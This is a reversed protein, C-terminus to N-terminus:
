CGDGDGRPPFNIFSKGDYRSIGLSTGFWLNGAEDELISQIYNSPLGDTTTFSTFSKGDYRCVGGGATAFWFIGAKDQFVTWVFNNSLGEKETFNTFSKGDYCSVGGFRTSFWLNGSRDEFIRQIFNNCLGEQETFGTFSKGDYCYVGVGNTGFWLNGTKDQFISNVLKSAPYAEPFNKLDAAPLPVSSFTKGDYRCIGNDTGFWIGVEGAPVTKDELICFVENSALGEKKTFNTFSKGDYRCAGVNTAFWLNGSKDEMIDRVVNGNFGEEKTFYVLSQGDYRGVSKDYTGLWLNGAKDQFIRRVYAIIQLATDTEPTYNKLSRGPIKAAQGAAITKPECVSDNAKDQGNCFNIFVFLFLLSCLISKM